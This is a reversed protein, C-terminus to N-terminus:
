CDLIVQCAVRMRVAINQAPSDVARYTNVGIANGLRDVLPGGSNGPGIGASHTVFRDSINSLTGADVTGDLDYPSGVSMVPQGKTPSAGVTLTPFEEAVYLLALDNEPDWRALETRPELNDQVVSATLDWDGTEQDGTCGAIVHHNTM